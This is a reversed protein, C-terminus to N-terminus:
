WHRPPFCPSSAASTAMRAVSSPRTCSPSEKRARLAPLHRNDLDQVVPGRPQIRAMGSGPDPAPEALDPEPGQPGPLTSGPRLQLQIGARADRSPLRPLDRSGASRRARRHAPRPLSRPDIRYRRPLGGGGPALAKGPCWKASACEYQFAPCPSYAPLLNEILEAAPLVPV